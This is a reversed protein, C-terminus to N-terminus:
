KITDKIRDMFYLYGDQTYYGLDGTMAFDDEDFFHSRPRNLYGMMMCEGKVRIEGPENPELIRGTDPDVVKFQCEMRIHGLNLTDYSVSTISMETSGYGSAVTAFNPFINKIKELCENPVATGLPSFIIVSAFDEKAYATKSLDVDALQLYYKSFVEVRRPKYDKVAKMIIDISM